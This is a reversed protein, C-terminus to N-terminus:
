ARREWPKARRAGERDGHLAARRAWSFVPRALALPNDVLAAALVLQRRRRDWRAILEVPERSGFLSLLVRARGNARAAALLEPHAAGPFAKDVQLTSLAFATLMGWRRARALAEAVPAAPEHLLAIDYIWLLKPEYYHYSHHLAQHLLLDAAGPVRLARGEPEVIRARAFLGDVDPAHRGAQAISWHIEVLREHEGPARVPLNFYADSWFNKEGERPTSFGARALADLAPDLRDPPVLLDVDTMPRLGPDAYVTAGLAAGKLALFPVGAGDLAAAARAQAEALGARMMEFEFLDRRLAERVVDSLGALRGGRDLGRALLASVRHRKAEAVIELAVADSAALVRDGQPAAPNLADALRAVPANPDAPPPM